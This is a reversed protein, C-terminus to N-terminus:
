THVVVLAFWIITRRVLWDDLIAGGVEGESLNGLNHSELVTLKAGSRGRRSKVRWIFVREGCTGGKIETQFVLFDAGMIKM